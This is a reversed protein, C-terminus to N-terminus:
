RYPIEETHDHSEKKHICCTCVWGAIVVALLLLSFGLLAGLVMPATHVESRAPSSQEEVTNPQSCSPSLVSTSVKGTGLQYRSKTAENFIRPVTVTVTIMKTATPPPQTHATQVSSSTCTRACYGKLFTDVREECQLQDTGTGCELSQLAFDNM